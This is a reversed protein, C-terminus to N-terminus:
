PYLLVVDSHNQLSIFAKKSEVPERQSLL